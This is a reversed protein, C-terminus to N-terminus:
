KSSKQIYADAWKTIAKALEPDDNKVMNIFDMLVEVKEAISTEIELNKIAATYKIVADGDKNNVRKGDEVDKMTYDNISELIKYLRKLENGRTTLLSTKQDEWKEANKWATVTNASVGVLEAIEKQDYQGTLYLAKAKDHKPNQKAM